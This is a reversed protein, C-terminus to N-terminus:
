ILILAMLNLLFNMDNGHFRSDLIMGVKTLIVIKARFIYNTFENCGVYVVYVVYM